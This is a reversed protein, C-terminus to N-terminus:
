VGEQSAISQLQNLEEIYQDKKLDKKVAIVITTVLSITLVFLLLWLIPKYYHDIMFGTALIGMLIFAGLDVLSKHSNELKGIKQSLTNIDEM